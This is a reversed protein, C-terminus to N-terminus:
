QTDIAEEPYIKTIETTRIWHTHGEKDYYANFGYGIEIPGAWTVKDTHLIGNRYLTTGTLEYTSNRTDFKTM